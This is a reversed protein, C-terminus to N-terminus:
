RGAAPRPDPVVFGFSRPGRRVFRAELEPVGGAGGGLDAPIRQEIAGLGTVLLLRRSADTDEVHAVGECDFVVGALDAGPALVLDYEVAAGARAPAPARLRLAVGPLLERGFLSAYARCGTGRRPGVFGTSSATSGGSAPSARRARAACGSPRRRPPRRPDSGRPPPRPPRRRRSM